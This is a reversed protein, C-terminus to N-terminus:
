RTRRPNDLSVTRLTGAGSTLGLLEAIQLDLAEINKIRSEAYDGSLSFSAPKTLMTARRERLIELAVEALGGLDVFREHLDSDTPPEDTGIYSRLWRYDATTLDAM